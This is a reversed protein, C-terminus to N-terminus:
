GSPPLLPTYYSQTVATVKRYFITASDWGAWNFGPLLKDQVQVSFNRSVDLPVNRIDLRVYIDNYMDVFTAKIPSTSYITAEGSVSVVKVEYDAMNFTPMNPDGVPGVWTEADTITTDITGTDNFRLPIFLTGATTQLEPMLTWNMYVRHRLSATVTDSQVSGVNNTAILYYTAGNDEPAFRVLMDEADGGSLGGYPTGNRYWQITDFDSVQSTFTYTMGTAWLVDTPQVDITPLETFIPKSNSVTGIGLPSLLASNVPM